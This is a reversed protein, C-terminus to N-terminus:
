ATVEPQIVCFDRLRIEAIPFDLSGYTSLVAAQYTSGFTKADRKLFLDIVASIRKSKGYGLSLVVKRGPTCTHENWRPGYLRLESHKSGNEFARFFEAKLPVFLPKQGTM